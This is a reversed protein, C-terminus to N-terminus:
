ANIFTLRNTCAAGAASGRRAPGRGSNALIANSGVVIQKPRDRRRRVAPRIRFISLQPEDERCCNPTPKLSRPYSGHLKYRINSQSCEGRGSGQRLSRWRGCRVSRLSGSRCCRRWCRWRRCSRRRRWGIGRSRGRARVRCGVNWCRRICVGVRGGIGLRVLLGVASWGGFCRLFLLLRVSAQGERATCRRAARSRMPDDPWPACACAV